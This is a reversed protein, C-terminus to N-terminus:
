EDFATASSEGRERANDQYEALWERNRFLQDERDAQARRNWEAGATVYLQARDTVSLPRRMRAVILQEVYDCAAAASEPYDGDGIVGDLVARVFEALNIREPQPASPVAVAVPHNKCPNPGRSTVIRWLCLPNACYLEPYRAKHRRVDAAVNSM